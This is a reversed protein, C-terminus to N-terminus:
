GGRFIRGRKRGPVSAGGEGPKPVIIGPVAKAKELLPGWEKSLAALKASQEAAQERLGQPPAGDAGKSLEYLWALQSYVKAGGKMALIDYAVEARPNHLREELADLEKVLEKWEERGALKDREALQKRLSRLVVVIGSLRDLDDRLGNAFAEQEALGEGKTRPDPRVAVEATETKGDAKLRVTYTGPVALFGTRPQGSDVKAGPIGKAGEHRLDWVVRHLGATKPLPEPPKSVSWPSELESGDREQKKSTLTRIVRKRGDVIEIEVEGKPLAKLRYHLIAGVPANDFATMPAAPDSSDSTRWRVADVPKLLAKEGERIPTLDDLVWLSRGNTGVILDDGKVKLDSVRVQPLNLRFREWTAGGDSSHFLGKEAGLWLHGKKKPDERVVCLWGTGEAKVEEWTAGLDKTRFLYPKRDDQRHNEVVALAAKEDFSSPEICMVTAFAPVGKPTVNRWEKGDRVHVLGDDSGAWLLGKKVPSEALAFITGYVEAGTNDGTIPGGSRKMRSKDNRTLDPSIAEWKEGGNTTRFLVNAAHWVVGPEHVSCLVPATWQFRHKLDEAGFGSGNFPYIGVPKAQKTKGDFRSIYGGYETAYVIEPDRPDSTVHGAEGGGVARWDSHHLGALGRSPGRSTGIDQITGMVRYPTADDAHIRYFQCIPLPPAYWDKGGNTTVNVGGDNGVIMREPKTPDIWLDHNDGHYAIKVQSLTKGGDISKLLPVQPFFVVDPNSPHVTLTSFYWPRQRLARHKNIREWSGGGDDSRYLGGEEAEILAYVRKSDSPAIALGIRGWPGKPLGKAWRTGKPPKAEGEEPPPLLQEWGDGSDVTRYLGSGPGGSTLSWPTRRAQWLAAFAIRPNGPDLVVAIAGSEADKHLVRKWSKGGDTTRYVGREGNPGFAKGLVAAYAVEADKPHVAIQGIQGEQEWVHKWSKGADTSRWLGNGVEVNGRINAEGSGAYVVNADSPAVAISGFTSATCDDSVCAWRLGGDTTKWIGSAATAAYYTLADGPVGAVRCVRGGHAPGISRFKLSKFREPGKPEAAVLLLFVLSAARRFM